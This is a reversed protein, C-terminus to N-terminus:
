MVLDIIHHQSIERSMITSPLPTSGHNGVAVNDTSRSLGCGVCMLETLTCIVSLDVRTMELYNVRFVDILM